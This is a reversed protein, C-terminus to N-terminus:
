RLKPGTAPAGAPGPASPANPTTNQAAVPNATPPCPQVSVKSSVGQAFLDQLPV